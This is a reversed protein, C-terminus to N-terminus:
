FNISRENIITILFLMYLITLTAILSFLYKYKIREPSQQVTLKITEFFLQTCFFVLIVLIIIYIILM